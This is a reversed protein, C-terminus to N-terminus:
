KRVGEPQGDADMPWGMFDLYEVYRGPKRDCLPWIVDAYFKSLVEDAGLTLMARHERYEPPREALPASATTMFKDFKERLEHLVAYALPWRVQLILLSLLLESNSNPITGVLIGHMSAIRKVLRINHPAYENMMTLMGDTWTARQRKVLSELCAVFHKSNAKPLFFPVQILKQLYEEATVHLGEKYKERVYFAVARPDLGFVFVFGPIDTFAKISELLAFAKCSICRDLDDVFVVIRRQKGKPTGDVTTLTELNQPIDDYGTTLRVLDSQGKKALEEEREIADKASFEVWKTKIALGYLFARAAAMLRNKQEATEAIRDNRLLSALFPLYLHEEHDYRSAYFWVPIIEEDSGCNATFDANQLRADVARMLTTKGSGYGGFIGVAFRAVKAKAITAALADAYTDFALHLKDTAPTDDFPAPIAALTERDWSVSKPTSMPMDSM